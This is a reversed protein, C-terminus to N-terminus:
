VVDSRGLVLTVEGALVGANGHVVAVEADKVQRGDADHRLQSVAEILGLLAGPRGPHAYSMLGGHPNVPLSGEPFTAGSEFFPGGEGRGCFGLGEVTVIPVIAFPDYLCAFDVDKPALGAMRFARRGSDINALRTLDEAEAIHLHTRAEGAGLLWIPEHRCHKARDASTVVVAGGGDSILSCELVHFPTAIM